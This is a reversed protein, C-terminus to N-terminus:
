VKKSRTEHPPSAHGNSRNTQRNNKAAHDCGYSNKRTDHHATFKLSGAVTLNLCRNLTLGDLMCGLDFEAKQLTDSGDFRHPLDDGREVFHGFFLELSVGAVQELTVRREAGQRPVGYQTFRLSRCELGLKAHSTSRLDLDGLTGQIAFSNREGM